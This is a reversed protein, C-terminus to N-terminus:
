GFRDVYYQWEDSNQVTGKLDGSCAISIYEDNQQDWDEM